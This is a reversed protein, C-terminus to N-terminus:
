LKKIGEYFDDLDFSSVIESQARFEENTEVNRIVILKQRYLENFTEEDELAARMCLKHISEFFGIKHKEGFHKIIHNKRPDGNWLSGVELKGDSVLEKFKNYNM